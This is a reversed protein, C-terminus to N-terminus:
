KKEQDQVRGGRLMNTMSYNAEHCAYEYMPGNDKTMSFEGSWPQTYLEEDRVTFRYFLETPSTRTFRETVTTRPSIALSRTAASRIPEAALLHTTEVVLTDGEWHGVSYGGITRQWDPRPVPRLYIIRPGPIDEGSMVVYDRTQVIQRPLMVPISRLPAYTFNELCQEGMSREEPNDFKEKTRTQVRTIRETGAPTLPLKGDSPDVIISTRYEGNVKALQNLGLIRTDPDTLAPSKELFAEALKRAQEPTVALSDAGPMRELTTLFETKWIGQFDPQGYETRPVVYRSPQQAMVSAGGVVVLIGMVALPLKV